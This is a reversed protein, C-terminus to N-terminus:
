RRATARADDADDDAARQLAGDDADHREADRDQAVHQVLVADVRRDGEDAGREADAAREPKRDAREDGLAAVPVHQEPHGGAEAGDHKPSTSHITGTLTSRVAPRKSKTPAAPSATPSM